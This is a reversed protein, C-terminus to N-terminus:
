MFEQYLHWYAEYEEPSMKAHHEETIQDLPIEDEGVKVVPMDMDDFGGDNLDLDTPTTAPISESRHIGNPLNVGNAMPTGNIETTTSPTNLATISIPSTDNGYHVNTYPSESVSQSIPTSKELEDYYRIIIDEHRGGDTVGHNQDSALPLRHDLSSSSSSAHIKTARHGLETKVGSVTSYLHWAPLANQQRIKEVEAEQRQRAEVSTQEDEFVVMIDGSGTGTDQAYSLDGSKSQGDTTTGTPTGEAAASMMRVSEAFSTQPIIIHDTQKLLNLVPRCDEMFRSLTEQTQSINELDDNEVLETRCTECYFMGTSADMLNLIELSDYSKKCSPCVYGKKDVESQMRETLLRQLKWMKWKVVDVFHKYDMYYYTKPVPRAEPTKAETRTTIKILKNEQLQGGVKHVDRLNMKLYTALEDDRLSERANIYDLAIVLRTDYFARGVVSVLLKVTEM